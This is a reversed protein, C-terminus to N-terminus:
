NTGLYLYNIIIMGRSSALLKHRTFLSCPLDHKQNTRSRSHTLQVGSVSYKELINFAFIQTFPFRKHFNRSSVIFNHIRIEYLSMIIYSDGNYSSCTYPRRQLASLSLIKHHASLQSLNSNFRYLIYWSSMIFPYDSIIIFYSKFILFIMSWLVVFWISKELILNLIVELTFNIFKFKFIDYFLNFRSTFYGRLLIRYLNLYLM